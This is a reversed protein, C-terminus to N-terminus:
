NIWGERLCIAIAHEKTKVGMRIKADRLHTKVTDYEIVLVDATGSQGLGHSMCELVQLQSKTPKRLAAQVPAKIWGERLCIAVTHERTKAACKFKAQKLQQKITHISRFLSAAVAELTLGDCLGQVVKLEHPTAKDRSPTAMPMERAEGLDKEDVRLIEMVEKEWEGSKYLHVWRDVIERRAPETPPLKPVHKQPWM